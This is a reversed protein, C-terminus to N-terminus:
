NKGNREGGFTKVKEEEEKKEQEEEPQKSLEDLRNEFEEIKEWIANLSDMHRASKHDSICKLWHCDGFEEIASKKWRLYESMPMGSVRFSRTVNPKENMEEM